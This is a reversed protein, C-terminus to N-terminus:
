RACGNGRSRVGLPIDYQRHWDIIAEFFRVLTAGTYGVMVLQVAFAKIAVETAPMAAEVAGHILM